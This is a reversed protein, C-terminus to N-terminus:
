SSSPMDIFPGWYGGRELAFECAAPDREGRNPSFVGKQMETVQQLMKAFIDSTHSGLTSLPLTCLNSSTYLHTVKNV